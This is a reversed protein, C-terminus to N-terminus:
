QQKDVTDSQPDVSLTSSSDHRLREDGVVGDEGRRSKKAEGDERMSESASGSEMSDAIERETTDRLLHPAVPQKWDDRREEIIFIDLWRPMIFGLICWVLLFHGIIFGM